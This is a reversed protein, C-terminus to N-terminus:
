ELNVIERMGLKKKWETERDKNTKLIENDLKVKFLRSYLNCGNDQLMSLQYLNPIFPKYLDFHKLNLNNIYLIKKINKILGIYDEKCKENMDFKVKAKDFDMFEM